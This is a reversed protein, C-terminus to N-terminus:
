SGATWAPLDLGLTGCQSIEMTPHLVYWKGNEVLAMNEGPSGLVLRHTFNSGTIPVLTIDLPQTGSFAGYAFVWWLGDAEICDVNLFEGTKVKVKWASCESPLVGIAFAAWSAAVSYSSTGATIEIEDEVSIGPTKCLYKTSGYCLQTATPVHQGVVSYTGVPLAIAVGTVANYVANTSTNTLTLEIGTPITAAIEDAFAKTPFRGSDYFSLGLTVSVEQPPLQACGALFLLLPLLRKM